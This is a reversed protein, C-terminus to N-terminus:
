KAPISWLKALERTIRAAMIQYGTDNTHINDVYVAERTDDFCDLLSVVPIGCDNLKLLERNMREYPEAENLKKIARKEEATLTKGITPCPQIFHAEKVGLEGSMAHMLRIYKQYSALNFQSREEKSWSRPLNFFDEIESTQPAAVTIRNRLAKTLYFISRWNHARSFMRLQNVQWSAGLRDYGNELVPNITAFDSGPQEVRYTEGSFYFHENYGDLTVVADAIEGYLAMLIAQQPQKRAGLGGNLVAVPKGFDYRAFESDLAKSRVLQHAVSGGALLITFKDSDKKLPYDPGSGGVNNAYKMKPGYAIALYPHPVLKEAYPTRHDAVETNGIDLDNLQQVDITSYQWWALATCLGELLGVCAVLILCIAGTKIFFKKM